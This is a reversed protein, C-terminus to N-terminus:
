EEDNHEGQTAGCQSERIGLQLLHRHDIQGTLRSEALHRQGIALDDNCPWLAVGDLNEVWHLPPNNGSDGLNFVRTADGHVLSSSAEVDGQGGAITDSHHFGAIPLHFFENRHLMGGFLKQPHVFILGEIHATDTITNQGNDIGLPCHFFGCNLHVSQGLVHDKIRRPM